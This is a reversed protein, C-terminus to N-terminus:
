LNPFRPYREPRTSTRSTRRDRCTLRSSYMQIQIPSNEVQTRIEENMWELVSQADVTEGPRFDQFDRVFAVIEVDFNTRAFEFLVLWGYRKLQGIVTGGLFQPLGAYLMVRKESQHWGFCVLNTKKRSQATFETIRATGHVLGLSGWDIPWRWLEFATQGTFSQGATAHITLWVKMILYRQRVYM